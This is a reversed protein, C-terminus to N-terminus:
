DVTLFPLIAVAFLKISTSEFHILSHGTNRVVVAYENHANSDERELSFEEGIVPTWISKYIHHDRVVSDKRLEKM